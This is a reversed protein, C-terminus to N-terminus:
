FPDFGHRQWPSRTAQGKPDSFSRDYKLSRRIWSGARCALKVPPEGYLKVMEFIQFQRLRSTERMEGTLM